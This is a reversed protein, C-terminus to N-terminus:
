YFIFYFIILFNYLFYVAARLDAPIQQSGIIHSKFRIKAEDITEKDGNIGLTRLITARCMANLCDKDILINDIILSLL